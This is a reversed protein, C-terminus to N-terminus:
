SIVGLVEQVLTMTENWIEYNLYTLLPINCWETKNFTPAPESM